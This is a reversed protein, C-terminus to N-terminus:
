IEPCSILPTSGFLVPPSAILLCFNKPHTLMITITPKKTKIPHDVLSLEAAASFYGV